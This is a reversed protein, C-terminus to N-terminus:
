SIPITKDTGTEFRQFRVWLEGNELKHELPDMDRPSPNSADVDQLRAGQLSFQSGHCPCLFNEASWKIACGLHPCEATYVVVQDDSASERVVWVNGLVVDENQTWADTDKGVIAVRSPSDMAFSELPGISVFVNNSTREKTAWPSFISALFPLGIVAGLIGHIGFVAKALFGRRPIGTNEPQSSADCQHHDTM